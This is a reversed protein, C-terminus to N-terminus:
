GLRLVRKVKTLVTTNNVVEGFKCAVFFVLLNISISNTLVLCATNSGGVFSSGAVKKIFFIVCVM